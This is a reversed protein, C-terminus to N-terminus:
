MMMHRVSDQYVMFEWLRNTIEEYDRKGNPPNAEAENVTAAFQSAEELNRLERVPPRSNPQRCGSSGPGEASSATSDDSISPAQNRVPLPNATEAETRKNKSRSNSRLKVVNIKYENM